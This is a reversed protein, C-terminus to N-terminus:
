DPNVENILPQDNEPNIVLVRKKKGIAYAVIDGTGGKGKAKQENWIAILIDIDDVLREGLELYLQNLDKDKISNLQSRHAEGVSDYIRDFERRAEDSSFSKLYEQREYPLMVKLPLGLSVATNAFMTDAGEALPSLATFSIPGDPGSGASIINRFAQELVPNVREKQEQSLIRHGTIGILVNGM